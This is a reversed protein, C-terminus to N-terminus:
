GWRDLGIPRGKLKISTGCIFQTVRNPPVRRRQPVAYLRERCDFNETHAFTKLAQVRLSRGRTTGDTANSEAALNEVTQPCKQLFLVATKRRKLISNPNTIETDEAATPVSPLLPKRRWEEKTFLTTGSWRRQLGIPIVRAAPVSLARKLGFSM